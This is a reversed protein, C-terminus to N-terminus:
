DFHDSKNIQKSVKGRELVHAGPSCSGRCGPEGSHRWGRSCPWVCASHETLVHHILSSPLASFICGPTRFICLATSTLQAKQWPKLSVEGSWDDWQHSMSILLIHM